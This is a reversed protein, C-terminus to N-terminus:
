SHENIMRWESWEKETNIKYRWWLSGDELIECDLSLTICFKKAKPKFQLTNNM